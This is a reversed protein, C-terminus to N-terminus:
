KELCDHERAFSNRAVMHHHSGVSVLAELNMAM